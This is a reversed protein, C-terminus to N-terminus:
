LFYKFSYILFLYYFYLINVEKIEKIFLKSLNPTNLITTLTIKFTM